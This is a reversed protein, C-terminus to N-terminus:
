LHPLEPISPSVDTSSSASATLELGQTGKGKTTGTKRELHGGLQEGYDRNSEMSAM